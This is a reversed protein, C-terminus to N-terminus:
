LIRREKFFPARATKDLPALCSIRTREPRSSLPSPLAEPSLPQM